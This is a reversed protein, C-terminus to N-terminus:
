TGTLLGIALGLIIDPELSDNKQAFDSYILRAGFGYGNLGSKFCKDLTEEHIKVLTSDIRMIKGPFGGM